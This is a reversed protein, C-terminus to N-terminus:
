RMGDILKIFVVGGGVGVIAGRLFPGFTGTGGGGRPIHVRDVLACLAEATLM